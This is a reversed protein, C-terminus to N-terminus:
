KPWLAFEWITPAVSADLIHLRVYRATVPPFGAKFKTGAPGGAYAVAWPQAPDTRYEVQFKTIRPQLESIAVRGIREEKLLDVELWCTRTDDATAWRTNGDDDVAKDGGFDTGSIAVLLFIGLPVFWGWGSEVFAWYFGSRYQWVVYACGALFPVACGARLIKAGTSM